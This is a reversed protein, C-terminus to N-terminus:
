GVIATACEIAHNLYEMSDKVMKGKMRNAESFDMQLWSADFTVKEECIRNSLGTLKLINEIRAFGGSASYDKLTKGVAFPTNLNICFAVGHFSNTFVFKANAILSIFEEPGFATNDFVLNVISIDPFATEIQKIYSRTFDDIGIFYTLIYEDPINIHAREGLKRWESPDVLFTPDVVLPSHRGTLEQIIDVGVEERASLYDISELRRSLEGKFLGPISEVGFSPAYAIRKGAPAFALFYNDDRDCFFPNWIQDSGCIYADYLPAKEHLSSYTEYRRESLQYHERQFVRFKKNREEIDDIHHKQENAINKANWRRKVCGRPDAAFNLLRSKFMSMKSRNRRELYASASYDIIEARYGLTEVARQLGLCQLNAGYSIPSHFTIIGVKKRGQTM